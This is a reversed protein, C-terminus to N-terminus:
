NCGVADRFPLIQLITIIKYIVVNMPIGDSDNLTEPAYVTDAAMVVFDLEYIEPGIHLKVIVYIQFVADLGTHANGNHGCRADAGVVYNVAAVFVKFVAFLLEFAQAVFDYVNLFHIRAHGNHVQPKVFKTEVQEVIDFFM